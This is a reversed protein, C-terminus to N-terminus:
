QSIHIAGSSIDLVDVGLDAMLHALKISNDMTWTVKAAFKSITELSDSASIRVLLPMTDPLSSRTNDALELALRVRNEFSGGYRNTRTNVAPSMFSSVLYGHALHLGIIDFGAHAAQLTTAKFGEGVQRIEASSIARPQPYAHAGFPKATPGVVDYPWGGVEKTTVAGSSTSVGDSVLWPPITSSKRGYHAFQIVILSNPSHTFDVHKRLGNMRFDLWIVCADPTISDAAQFATSEFM